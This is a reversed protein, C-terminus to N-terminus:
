KCCVIVNCMYFLLCMFKLFLVHCWIIDFLIWATNLKSCPKVSIQQWKYCLTESFSLMFNTEIVKVRNVQAITNVVTKGNFTHWMLLLHTLHSKSFIYEWVLLTTISVSFHCTNNVTDVQYLCVTWWVCIYLNSIIIFHTMLASVWLTFITGEAKNPWSNIHKSM